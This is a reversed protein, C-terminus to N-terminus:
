KKASEEPESRIIRISDIFIDEYPRSPQGKGGGLVPNNDDVKNGSVVEVKCIEALIEHGTIIQGFVTVKGDLMPLGGKEAYREKVAAPMKTLRNQREEYEKIEFKTFHGEPAEALIEGIEEAQAAVDVSKPATVIFFQRFNMGNDDVAFCLAGNFNRADKHSEVEFLEKEPIVPDSGNMNLAGGQVLTDKLVRHLTKGEYYGKESADIFKQVGVPAIDEFLEFYIEGEYGRVSVVAYVKDPSVDGLDVMNGVAKSSGKCSAFLSLMAACILLFAIKRYNKSIKILTM